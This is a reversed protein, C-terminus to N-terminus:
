LDVPRLVFSIGHAIGNSAKIDLKSRVLTPNVDNPDNDVLIATGLLRVPNVRISGGALMPIATGRPVSLATKSDIFGVHVHYSVVLELTPVDLKSLLLNAITKENAFWYKFGYLDAALAQFARDNPLFVTLKPSNPDAALALPSSPNAALITGVVGNLIDFDYWNRDGIPGQAALIQALTPQSTSASVTPGSTVAAASALAAGAVVTAILKRFRM